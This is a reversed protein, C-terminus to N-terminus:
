LAQLAKRAVLGLVRLTQRMLDTFWFQHAYPSRCRREVGDRAHYSTCIGSWDVRRHSKEKRDAIMPYLSRKSTSGHANRICPSKRTHNCQSIVMCIPEPSPSKRSLKADDSSDAAANLRIKEKDLTVTGVGTGNWVRVCWCASLCASYSCRHSMVFNRSGANLCPKRM